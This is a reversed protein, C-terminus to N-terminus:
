AKEQPWVGFLREREAELLPALFAERATKDGREPYLVRVMKEANAKTLALAKAFGDGEGDMEEWAARNGYISKSMAVLGRTLISTDGGLSKQIAALRSAERASMGTATVIDNVTAAWEEGRHILDPIIDILNRIGRTVLRIAGYTLHWALTGVIPLNRRNAM